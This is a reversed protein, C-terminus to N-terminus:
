ALGMMQLVTRGAPGYPNGLDEAVEFHNYGQAVLLQVPKGAHAVAAAFERSQRQFEPTEKSGYAVTLPCAIHEIHRQPSLREVVDVSLDVYSRRASLSAPHLEYMGSVLLAGKVVDAPLGFEAEWDTTVVVGGLHGGSSHGSVYLRNPDGGFREANEYVWAVARRAQEALPVLDKDTDVVSAFDVAVFHAGADVNIEALHVQTAADNFRWTGGHFFVNVPANEAETVYVDLGEVETPGYSYRHPPGLRSRALSDKQATRARVEALNPAWPLQDYVYDLEEQDYEFVVIPGKPGPTVGPPVYTQMQQAYVSRAAFASASAIAGGIAARRSIM